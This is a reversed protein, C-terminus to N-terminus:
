LRTEVEKEKLVGDLGRRDMTIKIVILKLPGPPGDTSSMLVGSINGHNM